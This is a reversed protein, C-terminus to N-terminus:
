RKRRKPKVPEEQPHEVPVVVTTPPSEEKVIQKQLDAIMQGMQQVKADRDQETKAIDEPKIIQFCPNKMTLFVHDEPFDAIAGIFYRKTAQSDWCRRICRALVM